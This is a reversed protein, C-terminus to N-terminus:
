TQLRSSINQTLLYNPEAQENYKKWNYELSYIYVAAYGYILENLAKLIPNEKLTYFPNDTTDPLLNLAEESYLLPLLPQIRRLSLLPVVEISVTGRRLTVSANEETARANQLEDASTDLHQCSM